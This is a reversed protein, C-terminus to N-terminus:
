KIGGPHATSKVHERGLHDKDSERWLLQNYDPRHDYAFACAIPTMLYRFSILLVPEPASNRYALRSRRLFTSSAAFCSSTIGNHLDNQRRRQYM